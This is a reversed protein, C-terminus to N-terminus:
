TTAPSCSAGGVVVMILGLSFVTGAIVRVIGYPLSGTLVAGDASTVSISGASATTAIIAGFSIFAGALISLILVTLPDSAVRKVGSEEARLAMAGPLIAEFTISQPSPTTRFRSPEHEM